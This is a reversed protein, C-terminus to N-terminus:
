TMQARFFEITHQIGEELSVEPKYGLLRRALSPDAMSDLIDGVRPPQFEPKISTGLIKNIFDVLQLLNTSRGNALNIVKGEVGKAVSAALNGNVVNAVYTFDRSQHGDGYIVPSKGELMRKVFIPVVAAYRGAPNQRPGFVNFYRLCVTELGYTRYFARCYYEGALKAVGYPSIPDPADTERNAAFPQDGYASSSAAYVVRRVGHKRAVHLLTLTGTVCAAHTDLPREVSLPVSPLAAQHFICDVGGVIGDLVSEDCLDGQTFAVSNGFPSLNNLNGTVLNDIVRVEHGDSLLKGVIHSGIFGAGGTVLYIAM